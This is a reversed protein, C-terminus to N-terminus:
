SVEVVLDYAHVEYSELVDSSSELSERFQDSSRVAEWQEQNRWPGAVSVFRTPNDRDRLLRFTIGALDPSMRDVGAQWARVFDAESGARAKWVGSTYM